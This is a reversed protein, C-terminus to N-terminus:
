MLGGTPPASKYPHTAPLLSQDACNWALYGEIYQRAEATIAGTVLFDRIRQPTYDGGNPAGLTVFTKRNNDTFSGAQSVILSGDRWLEISTASLRTAFVSYGAANINVGSNQTTAGMVARHQPTNSFTCQRGDTSAYSGGHGYKFGHVGSNYPGGSSLTGTLNCAIFMWSEDAGIPLNHKDASNVLGGYQPDIYAGKGDADSYAITAVWTNAVTLKLGQIRDPWQSGVSWGGSPWLRLVDRMSWWAKLGLNLGVKKRQDMGQRQPGVLGGPSPVYLGSKTQQFGYVM